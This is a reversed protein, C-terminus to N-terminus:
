IRRPGGHTEQERGWEEAFSNIWQVAHALQERIVSADGFLPDMYRIVDAPDGSIESINALACRFRVIQDIYDREAQGETKRRRRLKPQLTGDSARVRAGILRGMVAAEHREPRRGNKLLYDSYVNPGHRQLLVAAESRLERRSRLHKAAEDFQVIEAGFPRFGPM